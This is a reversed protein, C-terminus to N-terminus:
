RRPTQAALRSARYSSLSMTMRGVVPMKVKLQLIVRASDDSFWVMADADENFLGSKSKIIPQVVIAPRRTGNLSLTDRKVVRLTIPNSAPKFYKDVQTTKGVDLKEGRIYYLMGIDDLPAAVSPKPARGAGDVYTRDEPFIEYRRSHRRKNEIGDQHSRLTHFSATDTWSTLTDDISYLTKFLLSAKGALVFRFRYAPRGRVTDIGMVEMAARGSASLYSVTYTALEGVAFPRARAAQSAPAAVAAQLATAVALLETIM